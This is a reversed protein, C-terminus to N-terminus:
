IRSGWIFSRKFPYFLPKEDPLIKKIGAKYEELLRAYSAESLKEKYVTLWTGKVWEVAEDRSTLQYPYAKLFVNQRVFGLKYLMKSYYEPAQVPQPIRYGQLEENFPSKEAMSLALRHSPQDYNASMQIAIQGEPALLGTFKTLLFEHDDVWQFAANSLILDFPGEIDLGSIDDQMFHLSNNAFEKSKELMTESSDVGITERAAFKEHAIKTLEGTGCGLDLIRMNPKPEILELLDFFPQTRENKFKEYQM